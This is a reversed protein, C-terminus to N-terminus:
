LPWHRPAKINEKRQAQIFPQTVLRSTQKHHQDSKLRTQSIFPDHFGSEDCLSM